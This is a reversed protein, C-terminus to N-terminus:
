LQDPVPAVAEPACDTVAVLPTPLVAVLALAKVTVGSVVAGDPPANVTLPPTALAPPDDLEAV